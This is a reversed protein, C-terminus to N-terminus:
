FDIWFVKGDQIYYLALLETGDAAKAYKGYRDSLDGLGTVDYPSDSKNESWLYFNCKNCAASKGSIVRDLSYPKGVIMGCVQNLATFRYMFEKFLITSPFYVNENIFKGQNDVLRGSKLGGVTQRRYGWPNSAVEETNLLAIISNGYNQEFAVNISDSFPIVIRLDQYKQEHITDTAAYPEICSEFSTNEECELENLEYQKELEDYREHSMKFFVETTDGSFTALKKKVDPHTFIENQAFTCTTMAIFVLCFFISFLKKMNM